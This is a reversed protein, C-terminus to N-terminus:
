INDREDIKDLLKEIDQTRVGSQLVFKANNIAEYDLIDLREKNNKLFRDLMYVIDPHTKLKFIKRYIPKANALTIIIGVLIGFITSKPDLYVM